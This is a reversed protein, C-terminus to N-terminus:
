STKDDKDQQNDKSMSNRSMDAKSTNISKVYQPIDIGPLASLKGKYPFFFKNVLTAFVIGVTTDLIRMVVFSVADTRDIDGEFAILLFVVCCIVVADLKKTWVCASICFIMFFPIILIYIGADYLPILSSIILLIFGFVGGILTGIFRNVGTEFSKGPTERMCVIAAIAANIASLGPIILQILLCLFVALATKITRLGIKYKGLIHKVKTNITMAEM